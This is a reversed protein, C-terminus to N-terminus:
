VNRTKAVRSNEFAPEVALESERAWVIEASVTESESESESQPKADTAVVAVVRRLSVGRTRPM